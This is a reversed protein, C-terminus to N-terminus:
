GWVGPIRHGCNYCRGNKIRMARVSYGVREVLVKGCAPCYTHATPSDPVNGLYVYHLGVQKAIKYCQQLTALPTPPLHKLQYQPYFRSFHLPVERGVNDRVWKCLRETEAPSDNITPQVLVVLELWRGAAHVTKITELVPALTSNCYQRVVAESFGKLDVKIADVKPILALLPQREIYGNSVVVSRVGQCRGAVATDVMYEYFVVPESYTYAISHCGSRRAQRAVEQPPLYLSPVQEPRSQSLQWNQCAKCNQNCGATAISFALTGPLFHYFPKKEIPDVNAAAAAGYVLTYYVGDRNERV